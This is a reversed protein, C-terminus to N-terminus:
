RARVKVTQPLNHAILLPAGFLLASWVLDGAIGNRFFPLGAVYCAGLGALTRPYWQAIAWVAFNSVLFFGVSGALSAGALLAVNLRDKLLSGLLVAAAYFAWTFLLDATIPYGYVFKSLALDGGAFLLVPIWLRSRPQKYGFYLLAALIPTFSFLAPNARSGLLPAIFRFAVAFILYVYALMSVGQAQLRINM